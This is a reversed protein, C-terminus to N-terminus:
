LTDVVLLLKITENERQKENMANENTKGSFGSLKQQNSAM